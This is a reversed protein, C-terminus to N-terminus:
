ILIPKSKKMVNYCLYHGNKTSIKRYQVSEYGRHLYMEYAPFSADLQIDSYKEYIMNELVDMIFTGYGKGQYKPLIFLRNIENQNISGTGVYIGDEILLYVSKNLIALKINDSSHHNRFFDVAGQPYYCPYIEEITTKVITNVIDLHEITAQAIKM